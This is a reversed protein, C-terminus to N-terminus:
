VRVGDDAHLASVFFSLKGYVFIVGCHLKVDLKSPQLHVFGGPPTSSRRIFLAMAFGCTCIPRFKLWSVGPITVVCKMMNIHRYHKLFVYISRYLTSHWLNIYIINASTQHKTQKRKSIIETIILPTVPVAKFRSAPSKPSLRRHYSVATSRNEPWPHGLQLVLELM